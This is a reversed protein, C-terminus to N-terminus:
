KLEPLLSVFGAETRKLEATATQRLNLLASRHEDNTALNSLEEPDANLDYLEEPVGPALYRVYKHRGHHLAVYWPM